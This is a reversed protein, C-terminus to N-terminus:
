LLLLLLLLLLFILLLLLVLLLLLFLLPRLVLDLDPALFAVIRQHLRAQLRGGVLVRLVDLTLRTGHLGALDREVLRLLQVILAQPADLQSALVAGDQDVVGDIGAQTEDELLGFRDDPFGEERFLRCPPTSRNKSSKHALMM